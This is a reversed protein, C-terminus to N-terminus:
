FLYIVLIVLTAAYVSKNSIHHLFNTNSPCCWFAALKNIATVLCFEKGSKFLNLFKSVSSNEVLFATEFFFRNPENQGSFTNLKITSCGCLLLHAKQLFRWTKQWLGWISGGPSLISLLEVPILPKLIMVAVIWSCSGGLEFCKFTKFQKLEARVAAFMSRFSNFPLESTCCRISNSIPSLIFGKYIWINM